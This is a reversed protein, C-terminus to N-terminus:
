GWVVWGLGVTALALAATCALAMVVAYLKDAMDLVRLPCAVDTRSRRRRRSHLRRRKREERTPPTEIEITWMWQKM